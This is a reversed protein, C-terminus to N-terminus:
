IECLFPAIHADVHWIAAFYILIYSNAKIFVFILSRWIALALDGPEFFPTVILVEFLMVLIHVLPEQGIHLAEEFKLVLPNLM